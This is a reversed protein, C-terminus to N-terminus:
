YQSIAYGIYPNSKGDRWNEVVNPRDLADVDQKQINRSEQEKPHSYRQNQKYQSFKNLSPFGLM